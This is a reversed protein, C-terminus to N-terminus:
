LCFMKGALVRLQVTVCGAPVNLDGEFTSFVQGTAPVQCFVAEGTLFATNAWSLTGGVVGSFTTTIADAPPPGTSRFEAFPDGAETFLPLGRDLLVTGLEFITAGSCDSPNPDAPNDSVYGGLGARKELSRKQLGRKAVTLPEVQLIIPILGPTTTPAATASSSSPTVLTLYTSTFTYCVSVAADSPFAQRAELVAADHHGAARATLGWLSIAFLHAKMVTALFSHLVIHCLIRFKLGVANTPLGPSTKYTAAGNPVKTLTPTMNNVKLCESGPQFDHEHCLRTQIPIFNAKHVATYNRSHKENTSTRNPNWRGCELGTRHQSAM